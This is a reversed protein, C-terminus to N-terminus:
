GKLRPVAGSLPEWRHALATGVAGLEFGPDGHLRDAAALCQLLNGGVVANVRDLYALPLPLEQVTGALQEGSALLAGVFLFALGLLGLQELLDPRRRRGPHLGRARM